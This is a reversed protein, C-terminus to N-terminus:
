KGYDDIPYIINSVLIYLFLIKHAILYNKFNSGLTNMFINTKVTALLPIFINIITCYADIATIILIYKIPYKRERM